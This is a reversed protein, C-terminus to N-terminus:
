IPVKKVRRYRLGMEHKLTQCVKPNSIEIDHKEKLQEKVQAAKVIPISKELMTSALSNVAAQSAQVEKEKQKLDRLKQPQKKVENVLKSFLAPRVRYKKAM